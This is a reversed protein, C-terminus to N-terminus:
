IPDEGEVPELNEEDDLLWIVTDEGEQLPM